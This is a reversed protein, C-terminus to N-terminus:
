SQDRGCLPQNPRDGGGNPESPWTCYYVFTGSVCTGTWSEFYAPGTEDVCDCNPLNEELGPCRVCKCSNVSEKYCTGNTWKKCTINESKQPTSDPKKDTFAAYVPLGLALTALAIALGKNQIMKTFRM